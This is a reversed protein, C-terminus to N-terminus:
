VSVKQLCATPAGLPAYTDRSCEQAAQIHAAHKKVLPFDSLPMVAEGNEPQAGQLEAFELLQAPIDKLARFGFDAKLMKSIVDDRDLAANNFQVSVFRGWKQFKEACDEGVAMVLAHDVDHCSRAQGNLCTSGSGRELKIEIDPRVDALNMNHAYLIGGGQRKEMHMRYLTEPDSEEGFSYGSGWALNIFSIDIKNEGVHASVYEDYEGRGRCDLHQGKSEVALGHIEPEPIKVAASVNFLSKIKQFLTLPPPIVPESSKPPYVVDDHTIDLIAARGYDAIIKKGCGVSGDVAIIVPKDRDTLFDKPVCAAIRASLDVLDQRELTFVGYIEASNKDTKESM